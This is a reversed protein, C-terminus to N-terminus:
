CFMVLGHEENTFDMLIGYLQDMKWSTRPVSAKAGAGAYPADVQSAM